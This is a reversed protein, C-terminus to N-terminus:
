CLDYCTSVIQENELRELVSWFFQYDNDVSSPHPKVDCRLFCLFSKLQDAYRESGERKAERSTKPNYLLREASTAEQDALYIIDLYGKDEVAYIFEHIDYSPSIM